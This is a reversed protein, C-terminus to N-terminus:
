RTAFLMEPHTILQNLSLIDAEGEIGPITFKMIVGTVILLLFFGSVFFKFTEDSDLLADGYHTIVLTYVLLIIGAIFGALLM